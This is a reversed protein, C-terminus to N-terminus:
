PGYTIRQGATGLTAVSYLYQYDDRTIENVVAAFSAATLGRDTAATIAGSPATAPLPFLRAFVGAPADYTHTTGNITVTVTSPAALFTLVEITDRPKTETGGRDWQRMLKTQPGTIKADLRHTRHTLILEDELIVPATGHKFWEIYYSAIKLPGFGSAETPAYCNGESYDSWTVLQLIDAGDTIAKMFYAIEAETNAQEDYLSSKPRQQAYGVASFALKGADHAVKVKNSSQRVIAPDDGDGWNGYAFALSAYQGAKGYDLFSGLWAPDIKETTRLTTFFSQWWALDKGEGKFTSFVKRGDRTWASPRRLFKAIAAAAAAAGKATTSGNMDLMPIVGFWDIEGAAIMQDAADALAVCRDWNPNGPDSGLLDFFFMDVGYKMAQRIETKSDILYMEYTSAGPPPFGTLPATRHFGGYAAHIGKEGAPNNWATIPASADRTTARGVHPAYPPFWHAGVLKGTLDRPKRAFVLGDTATPAPTQGILEAIRAELAAVERELSAIRATQRTGAATTADLEVRAAALEATRHALQGAATTLEERLPATADAVRGAIIGALADARARDGATDITELDTSM